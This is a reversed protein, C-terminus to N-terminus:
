AKERAAVVGRLDIIAVDFGERGVDAHLLREALV